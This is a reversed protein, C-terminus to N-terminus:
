ESARRDEDVAAPGDARSHTSFRPASCGPRRGPWARLPPTHGRRASASSMLAWRDAWNRRWRRRSSAWRRWRAGGPRCPDSIVLDVRSWCGRCRRRGAPGTSRNRPAPSTAPWPPRARPLSRSSCSARPASERRALQPRTSSLSSRRSLFPSSPRVPPGHGSSSASPPSAPRRRTCIFAPVVVWLGAPPM